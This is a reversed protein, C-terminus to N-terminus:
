LQSEGEDWYYLIRGCFPCQIIRDGKKVELFLQPPLETYCGHCTQNAARVVAIGKTSKLKQYLRQSRTSLQKWLSEREKEAEALERDIKELLGNCKKEEEELMREAEKLRKEAEGIKADMEEDKDLLIIIEDETNSIEEKFSEIERLLAAYEENTKVKFLRAKRDSVKEALEDLLKEKERRKLAIEKKERKAKELEERARDVEEKLSKLREPIEKKDRKREIIFQDISQIKVLIELEKDM